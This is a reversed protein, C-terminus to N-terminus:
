FSFKLGVQVVPDVKFPAIRDRAREIERQIQDHTFGFRGARSRVDLDPTGAYLVGLDFDLSLREKLKVSYGAGIYPQLPNQTVTFNTLPDDIFRHFSMGGNKVTADLNRVKGEIKSASARAGASLRFDGAYPYYDVTLGASLLTMRNVLDSNHDHYTFNGAFGNVGARAGWNENFRYGAEIGPGLTGFNVAWTVQDYTLQDYPSPGAARAEAGATALLFALGWIIQKM